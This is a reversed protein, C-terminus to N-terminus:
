FISRAEVGYCFGLFKTATALVNSSCGGLGEAWLMLSAFEFAVDVADEGAGVRVLLWTRYTEFVDRSREGVFWAALVGDGILLNTMGRVM